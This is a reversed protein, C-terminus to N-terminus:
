KIKALIDKAELITYTNGDYEIETGAYKSVVVTDKVTVDEVDSAVAMVTALNPQEKSQNPIIIGSKTKEESEIKKILIRKGLPVINM